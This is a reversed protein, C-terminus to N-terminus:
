SLGQPEGVSKYLTEPAIDIGGPWCLVSWEEDIFAQSFLREDKLQGFVGGAAVIDSLDAVGQRDDEFRVFVKYGELVKVEKVDYYM